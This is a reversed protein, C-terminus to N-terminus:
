EWGQGKRAEKRIAWMEGTKSARLYVWRKEWGLGKREEKRIAWVEGTKSARLYEWKSESSQAMTMEM